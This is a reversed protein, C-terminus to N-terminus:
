DETNAQWYGAGILKKKMEDSLDLHTDNQPTNSKTRERWALSKQLLLYVLEPQRRALNNKETKDNHMDYLEFTGKGHILKWDRTRVSWKQVSAESFAYEAAYTGQGTANGMLPSLSSGQANENVPIRLLDLVTPMIDILQVQQTIRKANTLSPPLRIILPVRIVEDYLTQKGFRDFTGHDSLEEGHEATLIIITKDALGFTDVTELLEAIYHDAYRIGGDYRAVIHHLDQATLKIERGDAVLINNNINKLLGYDLSLKDIPGAYGPDFMTDYPAPKNFPPHVDYGHVFLFFRETKHESLWQIARPVTDKFSAVPQDGSEDFYRDFGQSLGHASAMDLGGVFAATMYGHTKLISPLTVMSPPMKQDRGYIGHNHVYRSTLISVQSPFTWHSQAIAQYFIYSHQAFKEIAPATNNKYGYIRLHDARLANVTILIVNYNNDQAPFCQGSFSVLLSACVAAIRCVPSKILQKKILTPM